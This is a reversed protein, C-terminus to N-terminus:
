PEGLRRSVEARCNAYFCGANWVGARLREELCPKSADLKSSPAPGPGYEPAV